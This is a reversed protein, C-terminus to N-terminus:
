AAAIASAARAVEELFRNRKGRARAKPQAVPVRRIVDTGAKGKIIKKIKKDKPKEVKAKAKPKPKKEFAAVAAAVLTEPDITTGEKEPDPTAISFVQPGMSARAM